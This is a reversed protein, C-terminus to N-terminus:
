LEIFFCGLVTARLHLLDYIMELVLQQKGAAYPLFSTAVQIVAILFLVRIKSKM